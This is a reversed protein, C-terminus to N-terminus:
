RAPKPEPLTRLAESLEFVAKTEIYDAGRSALMLAHHLAEVEYVVWRWPGRWLPGSAPLKQHDCFLFEPQLAEYKLRSHADYSKLVWGIAMGGVQRARFVAALDFSIVVCQARVPRLTELVRSVVQDHGFHVLSARKIEVFLTVEPRGELLRLVDSLLPIRTGRFREGFRQPESADIQAVRSARHEFVTGREGTTRELQHDHIVVPVGDACLHVDLELFRLGLGLASAFAPITNEPYESANGRHAVLHILRETNLRVDM